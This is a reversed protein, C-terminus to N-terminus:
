FFTRQYLRIERPTARRASIIRIRENQDDDNENVTHVVLLISEGEPSGIAQWRKELAVVRDQILVLHPDDFVYRANWFSIGHKKLNAEAKADDWDFLMM